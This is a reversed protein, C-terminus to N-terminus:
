RYAVRKGITNLLDVVEMSTEATYGFAQVSSILTDTAQSVDTFESVNMLIQTTEAFKAAEKMSYGLRAWDATSSVVDKITSGVQAATKSATQLFRDYTEETEDTVKKLETLALDIDRVYQVGKKLENFAKFIISSGSFYTFVERTKRTIQEIITETKKIGTRMMKLRGTLPDVTASWEAFTNAAIKTTGTLEGTEANLAKIAVKGDESGKISATINNWYQKTGVAGFNSADGLDTVGDGSYKEHIKLYGDLETKLEKVKVIQKSLNDKDEESAQDGKKDIQDRLERLEAILSSLEKAKNEVDASLGDTGIARVVTQDGANAATTAANIGTARQADKVQKKWANESAKKSNKNQKDIEAQTKAADLLRKEAKFAIDYKETLSDTEDQTLKLSQKKREIEEELNQLMAKTELNGDSEARASLKGWNAYAAALSKMENVRKSSKNYNDERGKNTSEVDDKKTAVGGKAIKNDISELVSKIETLKSDLATGDIMDVRPSSVSGIKLTNTHVGDLVSKVAQLTSELAWQERHQEITDQSVEPNLINAFVKTLTSELTSDDLAVKNADKDNDDYAIKVNYVISNLLTKLEETNVSSQKESDDFKVADREMQAVRSEANDARQTEEWLASSLYRSRAEVEENLDQLRANEESLQESKRRETELEESSAGGANANAETLQERLAQIVNDKANAEAESKQAQEQAAAVEEEAIFVRESLEAYTEQYRYSVDAAEDAQKQLREQLADNESQLRAAEDQASQLESISAGGTGSGAGGGDTLQKTKELSENLDDVSKGVSQASAGIHVLYEDVSKFVTLSEKIKNVDPDYIVSGQYNGDYEADGTDNLVGQYGLSKMFRTGFNHRDAPVEGKAFLAAIEASEKKANDIWADFQEKSMGFNEFIQQAQEFLQDESLDAIETLKSTDLLTNAGVLKQLSLLFERLAEAQEVTKNIYFNYGSADFEIFSTKANSGLALDDAGGLTAGYLGDGFGGFGFELASQIIPENKKNYLADISRSSIRNPDFDGEVRRYMLLKQQKELEDTTQKTTDLEEQAAKAAADRYRSLDTWKSMWDSASDEAQKKREAAEAAKEEEIRKQKALELEEAEAKAKAEAEERLKKANAVEEASAGEAATGSGEDGMGVLAQGKAKRVVNGLMNQADEYMPRLKEYLPTFVNGPETLKNRHTKNESKQYQEYLRVYKILAAYEKEWIGSNQATRYEDYLTKLQPAGKEESPVYALANELAEVKQKHPKYEGNQKKKNLIREYAAEIEELTKLGNRSSDQDVIDGASSQITKLEADIGKLRTEFGGLTTYVKNISAEFAAVYGDIDEAFMEKLNGFSFEDLITKDKVLSPNKSLTGSMRFLDHTQEYFDKIVADFDPTGIKLKSLKYQLAEVNSKMTLVFDDFSQGIKDAAKQMAKVEDVSFAKAENKEAYSVDYAFDRAVKLKQKRTELAKQEKLLNDRESRLRQISEEVGATLGKGIGSSIANTFQSVIGKLTQESFVIPQKGMKKLQENFETALESLNEPSANFKIELIDSLERALDAADKKVVDRDLIPKISAFWESRRTGM